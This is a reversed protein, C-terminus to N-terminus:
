IKRNEDNVGSYINIVSIDYMNTTFHDTQVIIELYQMSKLALTYTRYIYNVFSMFLCLGLALAFTTGVLGGGAIVIDYHSTNTQSSAFRAFRLFLSRSLM